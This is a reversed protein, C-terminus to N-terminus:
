PATGIIENLLMRGDQQGIPFITSDLPSTLFQQNLLLTSPGGTTDMLDQINDVHNLGLLHGLEHAAVNGIATGLETATLTRGFRSPTFMNTFVISMDAHNANYSDVDQSIGFAGPNTGGFLIRSFTGAPPLLSGPLVRVDLQLGTYDKVVTAYAQQRVAATLGAYAPAIDGSNFPGVTYTQDGPITITGGTFDLVVIQGSTAPAQGGRAVQVSIDYPGTTTNPDGLPSAAIALFYVSSTERITENLFPSLQNLDLNRDDNEFAIRGAEDFIAVDSDLNGTTGVDVILTDGASMPGLAYVDVDSPSSIRGTVHLAGSDDFAVDQAQDFTNNPEADVAQGPGSSSGGGGSGAPNNGNQNTQQTPCGCSGLVVTLFLVHVLRPVFLNRM